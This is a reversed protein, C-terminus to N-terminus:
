FGLILQHGSVSMMGTIAQIQALKKKNEDLYMASTSSVTDGIKMYSDKIVNGDSDKEAYKAYLPNMPLGAEYESKKMIGSVCKEGSVTVTALVTLDDKITDLQVELEIVKQSIRSYEETAYESLETFKAKM